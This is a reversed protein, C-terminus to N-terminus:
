VTLRNLAVLVEPGGDIRRVCVQAAYSANAWNEFNVRVKEEEVAGMRWPAVSNVSLPNLAIPERLPSWYIRGPMFYYQSSAAGNQVTVPPGYSDSDMNFQEWTASPGIVRGRSLQVLSNAVTPQLVQVGSGYTASNYVRMLMELPYGDGQLEIYTKGTTAPIAQRSILDSKIYEVAAGQTDRYYAVATVTFTNPANAGFVEAAARLDIELTADGALQSMPISLLNGGPENLCPPRVFVNFLTTVETGLTSSYAYITRARFLSSLPDLPINNSLQMEVISPGDIACWNRTQPDSVQLRVQEVMGPFNDQNYTAAAAITLARVRIGIRELRLNARRPVRAKITTKAALAGANFVVGGTDWTLQESWQPFLM